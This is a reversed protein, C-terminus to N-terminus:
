QVLGIGVIQTKVDVRIEAKTYLNNFLEMNAGKNHARYRLGFGIPDVKNKQLTSILGEMEKTMTESVAREIEQYDQDQIEIESEEVLGSVEGTVSLVLQDEGSNRVDYSLAFKDVAVHLKKGKFPADIGGKTSKRRLMSYFKTQEPELDLVVKGERIVAVQNIQYFNEEGHKKVEIVPLTADIGQELMMRRLAFFQTTVIYPSTTGIQGFSLFLANSPLREFKIKSELLKMATPAGIAVYAIKQIDRRRDLWDIVEELNRKEALSRGIIVIKAHGFDLEKDVENKVLRIAQAISEAEKSVIVFESKGQKPDAGPIALRLTVKVSGENKEAADIAISVVFFRKDIDKYGHLGNFVLYGTLGLLILRSAWSKYKALM